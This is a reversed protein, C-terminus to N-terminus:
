AGLPRYGVLDISVRRLLCGPPPRPGPPRKPASRRRANAKAGEPGPGAAEGGEGGAVGSAGTGSAAAEAAETTTTAALEPATAAAGGAAAAAEAAALAGPTALAAEAAAHVEAPAVVFLLTGPPWPLRYPRTDLGDGVLVVQVPARASYSCVGNWAARLKDGFRHYCPCKFTQAM